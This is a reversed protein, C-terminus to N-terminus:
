KEPPLIILDFVPIHWCALSKPRQHLSASTMALAPRNKLYLAKDLHSGPAFVRALPRRLVLKTMKLVLKVDIKVTNSRHKHQSLSYFMENQPCLIFM